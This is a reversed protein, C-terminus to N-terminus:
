LDAKPYDLPQSPAAKMTSSPPVITSLRTTRTIAISFVLSGVGPQRLAYPFLGTKGKCWSDIACFPYPLIQWRDIGDPSQV